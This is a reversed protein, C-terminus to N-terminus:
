LISIRVTKDPNFTIIYLADNVIGGDEGARRFKFASQLGRWEAPDEPIFLGQNDRLNAILMRAVDYGLAGQNPVVEMPAVGFDAEFATTMNAAEPSDSDLFVRSYVTAGLAHLMDLADNRFATWDPYGFISVRATAPDEIYAKLAHSMRNFEAISGSGPILVYKEASDLIDLDSSRLTGNYGIEVPAIGDALYQDRIYDIFAQKDNRGSQNHLLVPRMGAFRERLGKYAKAYMDQQPINAQILSTYTNYNRDRLNFINLVYGDAEEMTAAMRCITASDEPAIIVSALRLSDDPIKTTSDYCVIEVRSGNRSMEEAGVLMGKYFDTYLQAQKSPTPNDLAFPLVVAILARHQEIEEPVSDTLIEEEAAEVVTEKAPETPEAPPAVPEPEFLPTENPSSAPQASYDGEAGTPIVITEGHRLGRNKLHPNLAIIEDPTTGYRHALGFLTENRQVEHNISTTGTPAVEEFPFYLTTGTRLRDNAGPNYRVIDDRSLGLQRAISFVNDGSKVEYYYYKRGNISKVPLDLASAASVSAAM